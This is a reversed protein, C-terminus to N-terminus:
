FEDYKTIITVFAYLVSSEKSIIIHCEVSMHSDFFTRTKM